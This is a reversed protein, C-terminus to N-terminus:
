LIRKVADIRNGAYLCPETPEIGNMDNGWCDCWYTRIENPSIYSKCVSALMELAQKQTYAAISIHYNNYVGHGRGNWIKLKRAM